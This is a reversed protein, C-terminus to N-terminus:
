PSYHSTICLTVLFSVRLSHLYHQSSLLLLVITSPYSHFSALIPREEICIPVRHPSSIFWFPGVFATPLIFSDKLSSCYHNITHFRRANFASSTRSTSSSSLFLFLRSSIAFSLTICPHNLTCFFLSLSLSLSFQALHRNTSM